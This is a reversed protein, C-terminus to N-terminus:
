PYLNYWYLFIIEVIPHVYMQGNKNNKFFLSYPINMENGIDFLLKKTQDFSLWLDFVSTDLVREYSYPNEIETVSKNLIYKTGSNVFPRNVFYLFITNLIPHVYIEGTQYNKFYLSYSINLKKGIDLLLKDTQHKCLWKKFLETSPVQEYNEPIKM